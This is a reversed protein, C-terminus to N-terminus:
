FCSTLCLQGQSKTEAVHPTELKQDTKLGDLVATNVKQLWEHQESNEGTATYPNLVVVHVPGVDFSYFSPTNAASLLSPTPSDDAFANPPFSVCVISNYRRAVLGSIPVM